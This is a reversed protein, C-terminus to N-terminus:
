LSRRKRRRRLGSKYREPVLWCRTSWNSAIYQAANSLRTPDDRFVGIGKNCRYCLLGRIVGTKHCHDVSLRRKGDRPIYGCIWCGGNHQALLDAYQQETIGYLKRLYRERTTM